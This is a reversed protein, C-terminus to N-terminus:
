ANVSRAITSYDRSRVISIQDNPVDVSAGDASLVVVATMALVEEASAGPGRGRAELALNAGATLLSKVEVEDGLPASGSLKQESVQKPALFVNCVQELPTARITISAESASEAFNGIKVRVEGQLRLDEPKMVQTRNVKLKGDAMPEVERVVLTPNTSSSIHLSHCLSSVFLYPTLSDAHLKLTMDRTIRNSRQTEILLRYTAFLFAATAFVNAVAATTSLLKDWSDTTVRGLVSRDANWIM